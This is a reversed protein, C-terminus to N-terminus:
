ALGERIRFAECSPCYVEQESRCRPNPRSTWGDCLTVRNGTPCRLGCAWCAPLAHRDDPEPPGDSFLPRRAEALIAYVELRADLENASFALAAPAARPACALLLGAPSEVLPDGGLEPCTPEKM